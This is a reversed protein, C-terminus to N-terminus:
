NSDWGENERNRSRCIGRLLGRKGQRNMGDCPLPRQYLPEATTGSDGCFRGDLIAGDSTAECGGNVEIGRGRYTTLTRKQQQEEVPSRRSQPDKEKRKPLFLYDLHALQHDISNNVQSDTQHYYGADVRIPHM